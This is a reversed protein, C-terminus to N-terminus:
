LWRRVQRKYALYPEGFRRELYPEERAIVLRDIAVLILPLLILAWVLGLAFALGIYLIAMGVYMPNRTFRYPGSVALARSPQFPDPTTGVSEFTRLASRLLAVAGVIGVVGVLIRLWGPPADLPFFIELAGGAILGALYFLPPPAPLGPTDGPAPRTRTPANM